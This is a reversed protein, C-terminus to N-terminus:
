VMVQSRLCSMPLPYIVMLIKKEDITLSTTGNRPQKSKQRLFKQHLWVPQKPLLPLKSEAQPQSPQKSEAQLVNDPPVDVDKANLVNVYELKTGANPEAEAQAPLIYDPPVAITTELLEIAKVLANAVDTPSVEISIKLREYITPDESLAVNYAFLFQAADKEAEKGCCKALMKIIKESSLKQATV